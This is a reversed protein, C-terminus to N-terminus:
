FCVHLLSLPNGLRSHISNRPATGKCPNSFPVSWGSTRDERKGSVHVSSTRPSRAAPRELPTCQKPSRKCATRPLPPLLLNCPSRSCHNRLTRCPLLVPHSSSASAACRALRPSSCAPPRRWKRGWGWGWGEGRTDGQTPRAPPPTRKRAPSERARDPVSALSPHTRKNQPFRAPIGDRKIERRPAVKDRQGGPIQPTPPSGAQWCM